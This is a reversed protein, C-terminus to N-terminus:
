KQKNPRAVLTLPIPVVLLAMGLLLGVSVAIDYLM